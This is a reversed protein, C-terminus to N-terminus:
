FSSHLAPSKKHFTKNPSLYKQQFFTIKIIGALSKKDTVPMTLSMRMEAFVRERMELDKANIEFIAIARFTTLYRKAHLHLM